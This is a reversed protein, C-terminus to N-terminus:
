EIFGVDHGNGLRDHFVAGALADGSRQVHCLVRVGEAFRRLVGCELHQRGVAHVHQDVGAVAVRGRRRQAVGDEGVVPVGGGAGRLSVSNHDSGAVVRGTVAAELVVRRVASGCVGVGGAPDGVPGVFEQFVPEAADLANRHGIGQRSLGGALEVEEAAVHVIERGDQIEVGDALGADPDAGVGHAAGRHIVPALDALAVM